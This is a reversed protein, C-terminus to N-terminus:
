SELFGSQSSHTSHVCSVFLLCIRLLYPRLIPHHWPPSLLFPKWAPPSASLILLSGPTSIRLILFIPSRPHLNNVPTDWAGREPGSVLLVPCSKSHISPHFSSHIFAHISHDHSNSGLAVRHTPHPSSLFCGDEGIGLTEGPM